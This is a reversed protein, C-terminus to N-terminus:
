LTQYLEIQKDAIAYLPPRVYQPGEREGTWFLALPIETLPAFVGEAVERWSKEGAANAQPKEWLRWTPPGSRLGRRPRGHTPERNM